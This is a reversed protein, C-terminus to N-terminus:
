AAKSRIPTQFESHRSVRHLNALAGAGGVLSGFLTGLILSSFLAWGAIAVVKATAGGIDRLTDQANGKFEQIRRDAENSSIGAQQALYNKAGQDDGQLLRTTVGRAVTEPSSKLNLGNLSARITEQVQPNKSLDGAAGGMVGLTSGLGKGLFGITSGVQSLMIGFFIATIVVGQTRGVRTSILGSSKGASYSGIFLSILASVILWIGSGIGFTQGADNGQIIGRLTTGGVALGLSILVSYSLLSIFVGAFIARWNITSHEAVIFESQYSTPQVVNITRTGLRNTEISM